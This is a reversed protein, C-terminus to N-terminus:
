KKWKISITLNSNVLKADIENGLRKIITKAIYLGLGTNKDNRSKDATYFRDFLKKVDEQKLKTALNTFETIIFNEEEKLVIKVYGEGHKIMNNILNSFVRMVANEDSIILSEKDDIEIIPEINNEEFDSYFLAINECLKNSLSFKKLEFTFEKAEIRALDYFSTILAQLNKTRREVIDLYKNKDEETTNPSKALQLYGMISTLPTRLDHSMNAISQRLEEETNKRKINIKQNSDYLSNINIALREIDKDEVKTRINIYDQNNEEIQSSIYRIDKKLNFIHVSLIIIIIFLIVITLVM